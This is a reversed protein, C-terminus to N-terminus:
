TFFLFTKLLWLDKASMLCLGIKKDMEFIIDTLIFLFANRVVTEFQNRNVEMVAIKDEQEVGAYHNVNVLGQQTGHFM